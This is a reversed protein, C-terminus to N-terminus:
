MNYGGSEKGGLQTSAAATRVAVSKSADQLRLEQDQKLEM